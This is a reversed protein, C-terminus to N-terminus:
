GVSVSAMEMNRQFCFKVKMLNLVLDVKEGIFLVLLM